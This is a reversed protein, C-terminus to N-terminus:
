PLEENDIKIILFQENFKYLLLKRTKYSNVFENTARYVGLTTDWYDHLIIFGGTPILDSIIQLEQCTHEYLHSSDILAVAPSLSHLRANQLYTIDDLIIFCLESRLKM